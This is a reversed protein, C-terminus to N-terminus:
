RVSLVASFTRRQDFFSAQNQIKPSSHKRSPLGAATQLDATKAFIPPFSGVVHLGWLGDGLLFNYVQSQAFAVILGRLSLSVFTWIARARM